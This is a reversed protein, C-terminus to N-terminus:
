CTWSSDRPKPNSVSQYPDVGLCEALTVLKYGKGVLLKIAYPLVDHATTEYTEHNLALVTSPHMKALKDYAKKSQAPTSGTSDGSDFDWTVLKQGRSHAVKRVLDNYNGYPPRTFAPRVGIIRDLADEVRSMESNIDEASLTTLDKHAWTHSAVMHGQGYAFKVREVDEEEYICGYNDGNWFFTGKGGVDTLAKSIDQIYEYPGDDFTFAATKPVTCKTIVQALSESGAATLNTPSARVLLASSLVAAVTSTHFLM